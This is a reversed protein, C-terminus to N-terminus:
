SGTATDPPIKVGFLPTAEGDAHEAAHAMYVVVGALAVVAGLLYGIGRM